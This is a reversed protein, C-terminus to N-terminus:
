SGRPSLLLPLLLLLMPSTAAEQRLCVLRKRAKFLGFSYVLLM